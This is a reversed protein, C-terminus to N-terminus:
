VVLLNYTMTEQNSRHIVRKFIDISILNKFGSLPPIILIKWIEEPSTLYLRAQNKDVILKDSSDWIFEMLCWKTKLASVQGGTERVAGTFVDLENQSLKATDKTSTNPSLDFQIIISDDLFRYGM